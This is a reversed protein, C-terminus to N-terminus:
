RENLFSVIEQMVREGQNTQFLFQAHASGDLIVMRKPEPMRRFDEQVKPLRPGEGSVDDQAIIFLKRGKIKEPAGGGAAGGLVVLREIEGKKAAITADAGAGGGMSGGVVSVSKTGTKKLYRVAALVDLELPASLPEAQGPGKSEGYGRFDFALVRFGAKALTQAQEKWSEKNFRGGHALVVGRKGEGYVDGIILGGDETPVSVREQAVAVLAVLAPVLVFRSAWM